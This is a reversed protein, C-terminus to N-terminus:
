ACMERRVRARDAMRQRYAERAAVFERISRTTVYYGNLM